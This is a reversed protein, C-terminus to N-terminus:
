KSLLGHDRAVSCITEFTSKRDNSPSHTSHGPCSYRSSMRQRITFELRIGGMNGTLLAYRKPLSAVCCLRTDAQGSQGRASLGLEIVRPVEPREPFRDKPDLVKNFDGVVFDPKFRKEVIAVEKFFETCETDTNPAYISLIKVPKKQTIVQISIYRGEKDCEIITCNEPLVNPNRPIVVTVGRSDTRYDTTHITVTPYLTMLTHATKNTIHSETMLLIDINCEKALRVAEKLKAPRCGKTNITALRM